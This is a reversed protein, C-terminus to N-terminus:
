QPRGTDVLQKLDELLFSPWISSCHKYCKLEPVLGEHVFALKCGDGGNRSLKFILRTSNWENDYFPHELCTWVVEEHPILSDIRFRSYPGSEEWRLRMIFGPEAKMDCDKAWWRSLSSQTTLADYVTKQDASYNTSLSFSTKL